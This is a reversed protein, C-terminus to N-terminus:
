SIEAQYIELLSSAFNEKRGIVGARTKGEDSMLLKEEPSMQIFKQIAGAIKEPEEQEFFLAKNDTIERLVDLDSLLLPLGVAMAEVPAIGFGEFSSAMIFGHYGPLIKSIDEVQGKLCVPLHREEIFSQLEDFLYGNGYIDLSVKENKLFTFAQLLGAYNKQRRLNGVAVLRTTTETVPQYNEGAKFFREEVTNYLIYTRGKIGIWKEYDALAGKSVSIISQKKKYSYRELYQSLRNIKFSDESLVNHITFVLPTKKWSAWRSIWTSKLLHAHVLVAKERTIIKRLRWACKIFDFNRRLDLFYIKDAELSPALDHPPTLYCVIHRYQPMVSLSTRLLVEAGGIGLSDIVHVITKKGATM